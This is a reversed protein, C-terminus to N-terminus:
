FQNDIPSLYNLILIFKQFISDIANAYWIQYNSLIGNLIM